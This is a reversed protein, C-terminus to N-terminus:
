ETKLIRVLNQSSETKIKVLYFGASLSEVNIENKGETAKSHLVLRGLPDYVEIVAASLSEIFIKDLCPNPYITIHAAGSIESLGVCPKVTVTLVKSSTCTNASYTGTVTYVTTVTPNLVLSSTVAGTSWSYSNAGSVTLTTSQNKCFDQKGSLTLNPVALVTVSTKLTDATCSGYNIVLKVSFTGAASFVHSPNAANSTNAGGSGPDGFSWAWSFLSNGPAACSVTSGPYAFQVPPCYGQQTYSIPAKILDNIHNPFCNGGLNPAVSQGLDVYNCASGLLNPDNIVGLDPLPGSNNIRAVYLKGNIARQISGFYVNSNPNQAITDRSAQIAAPSGACLDWQLIYSGCSAGYLKSGDPSFEPYVGYCFQGVNMNYSISGTSKDFDFLEFTCAFPSPAGGVGVALQKGNPSAKIFGSLTPINGYFLGAASVVPTLTNIGTSTLLYAKFKNGSFEHVIIWVDKGNCHRVACLRETSPTTMLSANLVTVSGLGSALTMDVVSYYTTCTSYSPASVTFVFYTDPSGPQQVTLGQQSSQSGLMGSGNAMVQHQKNYVTFGDNYFLLNGSGDAVSGTGGTTNMASNNLITPPQTNFDLAANNGFYWLSSEKQAVSLSFLFATALLSFFTRKM